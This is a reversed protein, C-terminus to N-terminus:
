LARLNNVLVQRPKSGNAPGIVGEREFLEIMRAARPYGLRFKRQILSASIEKQEATWALIEDYREDHEDNELTDGSASDSDGLEFGGGSGELIKLAMADFCPEGQKSWHNAVEAIESEKLFPGHHRQPKGVGPSLFLMDGQALLREAGGEDLIIRSDMKSSVKFSIRGPINAKILGTVVEKRPSQMALILHIGCARAMQALRVVSHEVNQKDVSILDGFEEVVIVIYPQESFYYQEAKTAPTKEWEVNLETHREIEEKSLKNVAENFGELGRASFKAMSRYRKEMERIAWKLASIAKKPERVPPMILHPIKSFVALDVQKPDVLILRLTKPSHKLLLGTILSVTFVSKGSGTTGAILLHPMKRLDVIKPEGNAQKGLAVPLKFDESWFINEGLLDKFYVTDRSSNSTEIGVVDRGPLPAIIRLSESSLALTLDEALETIKSVKVNANPKFEFMTVAPGPKVSVIQGQVSFQSLKDILLEAKKKLEDRDVKIRIAPPDDLLMLGPMKWNEIRSQLNNAVIRKRRAESSKESALPKELLDPEVIESLDLSTSSFVPPAQRDERELNFQMSTSLPSNSKEQEAIPGKSNKTSVESFANRALPSIFKSIKIQGWNKKKAKLYSNMREIPGKLAESLTKDFYLLVLIISCFFLFIKAGMSNLTLTLVKALGLGVIGGLYVQESFIKLDPWAIALFCSINLTLLSLWILRVRKGELNSEGFSQYALVYTGAVLIWISVGLSHYCIDALFSGVIGCLNTARIGRGISNLSPDMPNFSLLSLTMFVATSSLWIFVLDSGFKKM